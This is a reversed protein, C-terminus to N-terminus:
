RSVWSFRSPLGFKVWRGILAGRQGTVIVTDRQGAADQAREAPEVRPAEEAAAVHPATALFGVCSLAIFSHSMIKEGEIWDSNRFLRM